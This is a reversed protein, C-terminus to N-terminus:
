LPISLALRRELLMDALFMDSSLTGVVQVKGTSPVRATGGSDLAVMDSGVNSYVNRELRVFTIEAPLGELTGLVQLLMDLGM